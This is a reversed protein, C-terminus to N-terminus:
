APDFWPAFLAFAVALMVAVGGICAHVAALTGLRDFRWKQLHGYYAMGDVAAFGAVAIAAPLPNGGTVALYVLARSCVHLVTAWVRELVNLWQIAGAGESRSFVETSHFELTSGRFPNSIFPMMVAEAMGAGAGFGILQPLTSPRWVLVFFAAAVGLETGASLLGLVASAVGHRAGRRVARDVVLHHIAAKAGVAVAWTIVGFGVTFKRPVGFWHELVVIPAIGVAISAAATVYWVAPRRSPNM